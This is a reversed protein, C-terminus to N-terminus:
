KPGEEVELFTCRCSIVQAFSFQFHCGQSPLSSAGRWSPQAESPMPEVMVPAADTRSEDLSLLAGSRLCSMWGCRRPLRHCCSPCATLVRPPALMLGADVSSVGLDPRTTWLLKEDGWGAESLDAGWTREEPVASRFHKTRIRRDDKNCWTSHFPSEPTPHPRPCLRHGASGM